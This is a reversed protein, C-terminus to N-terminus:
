GKNPKLYNEITLVSSGIYSFGIIIFGNIFGQIIIAFGFLIGARRIIGSEYYGFDVITYIGAVTSIIVLFVGSYFLINWISQKISESLSYNELNERWETENAPKSKSQRKPLVKDAVSILAKERTMGGQLYEEIKNQLSANGGHAVQNEIEVINLIQKDSLDIGKEHYYSHVLEEKKFEPLQLWEVPKPPKQPNYTIM